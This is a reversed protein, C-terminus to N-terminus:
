QVSSLVDSVWKPLGESAVGGLGTRPFTFHPASLLSKGSSLPLVRVSMSQSQILALVGLYNYIM